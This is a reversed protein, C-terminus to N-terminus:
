NRRLRGNRWFEGAQHPLGALASSAPRAATPPLSAHQNSNAGLSGFAVRRDKWRRFGGRGAQRLRQNSGSKGLSVIQADKSQVAIRFTVAEGFRELENFTFHLTLRIVANVGPVPSGEEKRLNTKLLNRANVESPLTLRRCRSKKRDKGGLDSVYSLLITTGIETALPWPKPYRIEM